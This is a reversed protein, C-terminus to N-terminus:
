RPRLGDLLIDIMEYAMTQPSKIVVQKPVAYLSEIMGIFTGAALILDEYEIVGQERASRLIAEIPLLMTEFAIRSLREAQAPDISPLDSYVLRVLDMPPQSLLWDAVARLQSRIDRPAGDIAWTLGQRHHALNREIVDIFLQEKGGPVHHYVTTHHIGIEAAIDRLTVAHYGKRAFLQEATDMVREYAVRKEEKQRMEFVWWNNPSIIIVCITGSKLSM